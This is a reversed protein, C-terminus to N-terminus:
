CTVNVAFYLSFVKLSNFIAEPFSRIRSGGCCWFTHESFYNKQKVKIRGVKKKKVIDSSKYEERKLKCEDGNELLYVTNDEGIKKKRKVIESKWETM